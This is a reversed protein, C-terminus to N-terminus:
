AIGQPALLNGGGFDIDPDRKEGWDPEGMAQLFLCSSPSWSACRQWVEYGKNGVPDHPQWQDSMNCTMKPPPPAAFLHPGETHPPYLLSHEPAFMQFWPRGIFIQTFVCIIRAQLILQVAKGGSDAHTRNEGRVLCVEFCISQYNWHSYRYFLYVEQVQQLTFVSGLVPQNSELRLVLLHVAEYRVTWKTHGRADAVLQPVFVVQQIHTIPFLGRILVWSLIYHTRGQDMCCGEM